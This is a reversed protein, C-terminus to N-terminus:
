SPFSGDGLPCKAIGSSMEPKPPHLLAVPMWRTSTLSAALCGMICLVTRRLLSAELRLFFKGNSLNLFGMRPIRSFLIAEIKNCCLLIPFFAFIEWVESGLSLVTETKTIKGGFEEGQTNVHLNVLTYLKVSICAICATRCVEKRRSLLVSHADKWQQCIYIQLMRELLRCPM